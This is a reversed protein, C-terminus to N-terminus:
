HQSVGLIENERVRNGIRLHTASVTESYKVAASDDPVILIRVVRGSNDIREVVGAHKARRIRFDDSEIPPSSESVQRLFTRIMSSFDYHLGTLYEGDIPERQFQDADICYWLASDFYDVGFQEAMEIALKKMVSQIRSGYPKDRGHPYDSPSIVLM